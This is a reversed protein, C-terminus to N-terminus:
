IKEAYAWKLSAHIIEYVHPENAKHWERRLMEMERDPNINIQMRTLIKPTNSHTSNPIIYPVWLQHCPEMSNGTYWYYKIDNNKKIKFLKNTAIVGLKFVLSTELSKLDKPKSLDLKEWQDPELIEVKKWQNGLDQYNFAYPNTYCIEYM